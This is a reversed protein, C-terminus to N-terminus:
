VLKDLWIKTCCIFVAALFSTSNKAYRTAIGRWRKMKLFANEVLHRLKYLEKDYERQVIRNKKPPIVVLMNRETAYKVIDNTDYAKDGFLANGDLDELLEIAKTCDPTTGATVICGIPMGSADVALHVKSNLGRKHAGYGPKRRSSRVCTSSSQHTFCRGDVM